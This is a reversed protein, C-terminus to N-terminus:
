IQIYYFYRIYIRVYKILFREGFFLFFLVFTNIYDYIQLFKNPNEGFLNIFTYLKLYIKFSPNM